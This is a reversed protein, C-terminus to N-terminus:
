YEQVTAAITATVVTVKILGFAPLKVAQVQSAVANAATAAVLIEYTSGGDVSKEVKVTGASGGTIQVRVTSPRGTVDALGTGSVLTLAKVTCGGALPPTAAVVRSDDASTQEYAGASTLRHFTYDDDDDVVAISDDSLKALYRAM